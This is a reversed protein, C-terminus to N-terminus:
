GEALMEKIKTLFAERAHHKVEEPYNSNELEDIERGFTQYARRMREATGQVRIKHVEINGDELFGEYAIRMDRCGRGVIITIATVPIFLVSGIFSLAIDREVQSPVIARGNENEYHVPVLKGNIPVEDRRGLSM